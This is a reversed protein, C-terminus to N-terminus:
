NVLSPPKLQARALSRTPRPMGRTLDASELQRVYEVLRNPETPYLDLDDFAGTPRWGLKDFFRRGSPSDEPVWSTIVNRGRSRMEDEVRAVMVGAVGRGWSTPHVWIDDLVTQRGEIRSVAFGVVRNDFEAVFTDTDDVFISDRCEAVRAGNFEEAAFVTASFMYQFGSRWAATYIATISEIDDLSARRVSLM